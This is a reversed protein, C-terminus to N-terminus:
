CGTVSHRLVRLIKIMKVEPVMQTVLLFSILSIQVIMQCMIRFFGLIWSIGPIEFIGPM